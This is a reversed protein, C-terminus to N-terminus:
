RLYLYAVSFIAVLLSLFIVLMHWDGSFFALTRRVEESGLLGESKGQRLMLSPSSKFIGEIGESIHIQVIYDGSPLRKKSVVPFSARKGANDLYRCILKGLGSSYSFSVDVLDGRELLVVPKGRAPDVVPSCAVSYVERDEPIATVKNEEEPSSAPPPPFVKRVRAEEIYEMRIKVFCDIHFVKNFGEKIKQPFAQKEQSSHYLLNISTPTIYSDLVQNCQKYIPSDSPKEIANIANRVAEWQADISFGEEMSGYSAWVIRDRVEGSEGHALLCFVGVIDGRKRAEFTGLIVLYPARSARLSRVGGVPGQQQVARRVDEESCELFSALDAYSFTVGEGLAEAASAPAKTVDFLGEQAHHPEEHKAMQGRGITKM